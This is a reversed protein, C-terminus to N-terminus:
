REVCGWAEKVPGGLCPEPRSVFITRWQRGKAWEANTNPAEAQKKAYYNLATERAWDFLTPKVADFAFKVGTLLLAAIGARRQTTAALGAPAPARRPRRVWKIFLFGGAVAAGLWAIRHKEFGRRVKKPIDLESRLTQGSHTLRARSYEIEAILARKRERDM